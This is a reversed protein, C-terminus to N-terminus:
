GRGHSGRCWDPYGLSRLASYYEITMGVATHTAYGVARRQWIQRWSGWYMM